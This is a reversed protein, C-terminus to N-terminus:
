MNVVKKIAPILTDAMSKKAIFDDAGNELASDRYGNLDWLTLMIIKSNPSQDRISPILNIGNQGPMLIDVLIVDPEKESAIRRADTDSITTFVEKIFDQESLFDKATTLFRQNNDLMLVTIKKM